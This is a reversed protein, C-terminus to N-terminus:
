ISINFSVLLQIFFYEFSNLGDVNEKIAKLSEPDHKDCNDCIRSYFRFYRLIRLYDEKVRKDPIGM